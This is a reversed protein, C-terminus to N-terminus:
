LTINLTLLFINLINKLNLMNLMIFIKVLTVVHLEYMRFQSKSKPKDKGLNANLFKNGYNQDTRIEGCGRESELSDFCM